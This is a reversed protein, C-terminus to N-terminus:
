QGGEQDADQEDQDEGDRQLPQGTETAALHDGEPRPGRAKEGDVAPLVQDEGGDGQGHELQRQDHPQHAGLHELHQARVVDLECPRAPQRVAGDVEPVRELVGHHRHDGDGAQLEARQDGKGDDGLRDKLPRAHPQQEDLSHGEGVDRHHGGVQAQDGEDEHQDVERDIQQIEGDIRAQPDFLSCSRV